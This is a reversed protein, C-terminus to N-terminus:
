SCCRPTAGAAIRDARIRAPSAANRATRASSSSFSPLLKEEEKEQNEEVVEDLVKTLFGRPAVDDARIEKASERPEARAVAGAVARLLHAQQAVLDAIVAILEATAPPAAERVAAVPPGEDSGVRIVIDPRRSVISSGMATLYAGVTSAAVDRRRALECQRMPIRVHDGERVGYDRMAAAFFRQAADM